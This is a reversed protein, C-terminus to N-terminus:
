IAIWSVDIMKQLKLTLTSLPILNDLSAWTRSVIDRPSCIRPRTGSKDMQSAMAMPVPPQVLSKKDLMTLTSTARGFQLMTDQLQSFFGLSICARHQPKPIIATTNDTVMLHTGNTLYTTFNLLEMSKVFIKSQHVKNRKLHRSTDYMPDICSINSVQDILLRDEKTCHRKQNGNESSVIMDYM